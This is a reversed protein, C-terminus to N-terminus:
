NRLNRLIDRTQKRAPSGERCLLSVSVCFLTARPTGVNSLSNRWLPSSCEGVADGLNWRLAACCTLRRTTILMSAYFNSFWHWPSGQRLVARVPQLTMAVSLHGVRCPLALALICWPQKMMAIFIIFLISLQYYLLLARNLSYKSEILM